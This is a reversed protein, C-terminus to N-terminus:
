EMDISLLMAFEEATIENAEFMKMLRDKREIGSDINKEELDLKKMVQEHNRLNAREDNTLKAIEKNFEIEAKVVEKEALHIQKQGEIITRKTVEKEKQYDILSKFSEVSTSALSFLQDGSLGGKGTSGSAKSKSTKKISPTKKPLKPTPSKM